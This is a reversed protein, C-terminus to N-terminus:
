GMVVMDRVAVDVNEKMEEINVFAIHM